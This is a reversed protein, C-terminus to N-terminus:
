EICFIRRWSFIKRVEKRYTKSVILNAYCSTCFPIGLSFLCLDTIVGVIAQQQPSKTYNATIIQYLLFIAYMFSFSGYITIDM